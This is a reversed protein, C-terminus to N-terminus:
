TFLFQRINHLGFIYRNRHYLAPEDRYCNVYKVSLNIRQIDDILKKPEGQSPNGWWLVSESELVM